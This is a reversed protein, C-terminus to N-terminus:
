KCREKPPFYENAGQKSTLTSNGRAMNPLDLVQKVKKNAAHDPVDMFLTFASINQWLIYGSYLMQKVM